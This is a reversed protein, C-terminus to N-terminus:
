RHRPYRDTGQEQSDGYKDPCEARV